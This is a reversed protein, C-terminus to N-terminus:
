HRSFSFLKSFINGKGTAKASTQIKSNIVVSHNINIQNSFRSLSNFGITNCSGGRGAHNNNNGSPNPNATPELACNEAIYFQGSGVLHYIRGNILGDTCVQPSTTTSNNVVLVESGCNSTAARNNADGSYVAQWYYTGSNTPVFDASMTVVGNVVSQTNSFVPTGSCVSYYYVNYTVSGGANSTVNNLVASDTVATGTAVTSASLQTSITVTGNQSITLPECVSSASAYNVDGNYSALFSYQGANLPGQAFGNADVSGSSLALSGSTAVPSNSCTNNNFFSLTMNGTPVAGSGSVTVVDHVITGSNAASIANENADHISTTISSTLIYTQASIIATAVQTITPSNSSTNIGNSPLIISIADAPSTGTWAASTALSVYFKGSAPTSTAPYITTPSNINVTNQSGVLADSGPNFIGSGNDQYIALAALHSGTITSGNASNVQVVINSLTEGANAALGFSFVATPQSSPPLVMNATVLPAPTATFTVAAHAAPIVGFAVTAAITALGVTWSIIKKM